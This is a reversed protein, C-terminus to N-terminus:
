IKISPLFDNHFLNKRGNHSEAHDERDARELDRSSGLTCCDCAFSFEKCHLFVANIVECIVDSNSFRIFIEKGSDEVTVALGYGNGLGHEKFEASGCHVEGDIALDNCIMCFVIAVPCAACESTHSRAFSGDKEVVDGVISVYGNHTVSLVDTTEGCSDNVVGGEANGCLAEEDVTYVVTVDVDVGGCVLLHSGATEGTNKVKRVEIVAGVFADILFAAINKLSQILM